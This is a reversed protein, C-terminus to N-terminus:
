EILAKYNALFRDVLLRDVKKVALQPPTRPKAASAMAIFEVLLM